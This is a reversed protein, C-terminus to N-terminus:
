TSYRLTLKQPKGPQYIAHLSCAIDCTVTHNCPQHVKVLHVLLILTESRLLCLLQDVTLRNILNRGLNRVSLRINVHLIKNNTSSANM